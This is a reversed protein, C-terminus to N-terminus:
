TRAMEKHAAVKPLSLSVTTGEGLKSRVDMSGGLDRMIERAQYAGIGFGNRKTTKLPRFLQGAIFEQTMGPGSDSVAVYVSGDGRGVRVITPLGKPAAEVANGVVLDLVGLFADKNAMDVVVPTDSENMVIDLGIKQKDHVFTAVLSNIDVEQLSEESTKKGIPNGLLQGLLSQLKEVAHRLTATMDKRFEENHGFEEVNRVLLSLQGITNKTDHVIFAFRKNFEELQRVDALAQATEEQMLYAALQLAVLSILNRDEWDLNRAARPPNLLAVGILRSRYRLPVVLWSGPFRERWLAAAAIDKSSTLDLYACDEDQFAALGPDDAALPALDAPYSWRAVPMFQHWRDRLTWLAGGHSDLLEALTRLVRMPMDGEEWASLARIFKDWQLRYDYKYNFFNENIFAKARSRAGTSALAVALGVAAVFGFVISIATGNDGGNKRLYFAAIAAGQM